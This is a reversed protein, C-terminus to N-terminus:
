GSAPITSRSRRSRAAARQLDPLGAVMELDYNFEDNKRIEVLTADILVQPRRKDLTKILKSVWEQNKRSAYVILSFTNQDPVIM